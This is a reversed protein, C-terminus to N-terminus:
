SGVRTGGRSSQYMDLVRHIIAQPGIFLGALKHAAHGGESCARQYGHWVTTSSGPGIVQDYHEAGGSEIMHNKANLSVISQSVEEFADYYEKGFVLFSNALKLRDDDIQKQLDEVLKLQFLNIGLQRKDVDTRDAILDVIEAKKARVRANLRDVLEKAEKAKGELAVHESKLKNLAAQLQADNAYAAGAGQAPTTGGGVGGTAATGGQGAPSNPGGPFSM